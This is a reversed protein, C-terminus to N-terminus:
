FGWIKSHYLLIINLLPKQVSLYLDVYRYAEHLGFGVCSPIGLFDLKHMKMWKEVISFFFFFNLNNILGAAIILNKIYENCTSFHSVQM